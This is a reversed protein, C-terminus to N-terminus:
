SVVESLNIIHNRGLKVYVRVIIEFEGDRITM